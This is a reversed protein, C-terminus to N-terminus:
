QSVNSGPLPIISVYHRAASKGEVGTRRGSAVAFSVRIVRPLRDPYEWSNERPLDEDLKISEFCEVKWDTVNRLLPNRAAEKFREDWLPATTWDYPKSGQYSLTLKRLRQLNSERSGGDPDTGTAAVVEPERSSDYEARGLTQSKRDWVYAVHTVFGLRGLNSTRARPVTLFLAVLNEDQRVQLNLYRGARDNAVAASLEDRMLMTTGRVGESAELTNTSQSVTSLTSATMQVALAIMVSLVVAAVLSEILTFAQSGLIPPRFSLRAMM